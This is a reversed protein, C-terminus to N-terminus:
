EPDEEPDEAIVVLDSNATRLDAMKITEVIVAEIAAMETVEVEGEAEASVVEIAGMETGEIDEEDEINEEGAVEAVEAAEVVVEKINEQIVRKKKKLLIQMGTTLPQCKTRSMIM